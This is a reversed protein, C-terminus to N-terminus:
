EQFANLSLAIRAKAQARAMGLTDLLARLSASILATDSLESTEMIMQLQDRVSEWRVQDAEIEVEIRRDKATEFDIIDPM